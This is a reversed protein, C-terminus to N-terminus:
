FSFIYYELTSMCLVVSSGCLSKVFNKYEDNFTYDVPLVIYEARTGFCFGKKCAGSPTNIICFRGKPSGQSKMKRVM